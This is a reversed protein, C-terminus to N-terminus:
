NCRHEGYAQLMVEAPHITKASTGHEIQLQCTACETTVMQPQAAHISEFLDHGLAMSVDYKEQKFGYTGSM